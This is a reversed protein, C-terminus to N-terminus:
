LSEEFLKIAKKQPMFSAGRLILENFRKKGLKKRMFLTYQGDWGHKEFTQKQYEFGLQKDKFHHLWCLAICNDPDFRTAFRARGVYHSNQLKKPDSVLCGSPHQCFVDRARIQESFLKDAKTLSLTPKSGLYRRRYNKRTRRVTKPVVRIETM